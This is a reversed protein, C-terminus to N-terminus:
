KKIVFNQSEIRNKRKLEIPCYNLVNEIKEWCRALEKLNKGHLIDLEDKQQDYEFAKLYYIKRLEAFLQIFLDFIEMGGYTQRCISTLQTLYDELLEGAIEEQIMNAYSKTLKLTIEPLHPCSLHRTSISKRKNQISKKKEDPNPLNKIQKDFLFAFNEISIKKKSQSPEEEYITHLIQPKIPQIKLTSDNPLRKILSSNSLQPSSYSLNEIPSSPVITNNKVAIKYVFGNTSSTLCDSPKSFDEELCKVNPDILSISSNLSPIFNHNKVIPKVQNYIGSISESKPDVPKKKTYTFGTSTTIYENVGEM